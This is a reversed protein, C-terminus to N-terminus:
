YNIFFMPRTFWFSFVEGKKSYSLFFPSSGREGAGLASIKFLSNESVGLSGSDGGSIAGACAGVCCVVSAVVGMRGGFVVWGRM